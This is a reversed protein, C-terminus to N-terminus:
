VLAVPMEAAVGNMEKLRGERLFSLPNFSTSSM